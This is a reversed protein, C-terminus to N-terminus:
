MTLPGSLKFSSIKTYDVLENRLEQYSLLRSRKRLTSLKVFRVQPTASTRGHWQSYQNGLCRKAVDIPLSVEDFYPAFYDFNITGARTDLFVDDPSHAYPGPGFRRHEATM